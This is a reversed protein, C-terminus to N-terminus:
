YALRTAPRSRTKPKRHKPPPRPPPQKAVRGELYGKEQKGKIDGLSPSPRPPGAIGRTLSRPALLIPQLGAAAGPGLDPNPSTHPTPPSYPSLQLDHM